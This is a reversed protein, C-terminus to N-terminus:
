CVVSLCWAITPESNMANYVRPLTV